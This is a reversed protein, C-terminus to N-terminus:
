REKGDTVFFFTQQCKSWISPSLDALDVARIGM